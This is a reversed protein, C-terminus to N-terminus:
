IATSKSPTISLINPYEAMKQFLWMKNVDKQPSGMAVFLESTIKVEQELQELQHRSPQTLRSLVNVCELHMFLKGILFEDFIKAKATSTLKNTSLKHLLGKMLAECLAYKIKLARYLWILCPQSTQYLNKLKKMSLVIYSMILDIHYSTPFRYKRGASKFSAHWELIIAAAYAACFLFIAGVFTVSLRQSLKTIAYKAYVFSNSYDADLALSLSLLASSCVSPRDRKTASQISILYKEIVSSRKPNIDSGLIIFQLVKLETTWKFLTCQGLSCAFEGIFKLLHTSRSARGSVFCCWYDFLYIFQRFTSGTDIGWHGVLLCARHMCQFAINFNCISASEVSKNILCLVTSLKSSKPSEIPCPSLSSTHVFESLVNLSQEFSVSSKLEPSSAISPDELRCKVDADRLSNDVITILSLNNALPGGLARLMLAEIASGIISIDDNDDDDDSQKKGPELRSIRNIKHKIDACYTLLQQAGQVVGHILQIMCLHEYLSLALKLLVINNDLHQGISAYEEEPSLLLKLKSKIANWASTSKVNSNGTQIINGTRSREKTSTFESFPLGGEKDIVPLKLGHLSLKIM